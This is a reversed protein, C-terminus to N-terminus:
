EGLRVAGTFRQAWYPTATPTVVVGTREDAAHVFHGEGLYIGNHSLGAMYTNSWFLVDGPRLEDGSVKRGSAFQEAM